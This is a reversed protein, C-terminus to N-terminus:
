KFLLFFDKWSIPGSSIKNLFFWFSGKKLRPKFADRPLYPKQNVTGGDFRYVLNIKVPLFSNKKKPFFRLIFTAVNNISFLFIQANRKKIPGWSGKQNERLFYAM